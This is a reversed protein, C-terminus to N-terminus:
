KNNAKTTHAQVKQRHSVKPGAPKSPLYQAVVRNLRAMRPNTGRESWKLVHAVSNM